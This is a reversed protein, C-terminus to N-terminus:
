STEYFKCMRIFFIRSKATSGSFFDLNQTASFRCCPCHHNMRCVLLFYSPQCYVTTAMGGYIGRIGIQNMKTLWHPRPGWQLVHEPGCISQYRVCLPSPPPPFLHKMSSAMVRFPIISYALAIDLM